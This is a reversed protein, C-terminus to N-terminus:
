MLVDFTVVLEHKVSHVQIGVRYDNNAWGM